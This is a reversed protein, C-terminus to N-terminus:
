GHLLPVVLGSPPGRSPPLRHLLASAAASKAAPGAMPPLVPVESGAVSAPLAAISSAAFPCDHADAAPDGDPTANGADADLDSDTDAAGAIAASAHDARRNGHCIPGTPASAGDARAKLAVALASAPCISLWGAARPATGDGAGVSPMFGAPVLAHLLLAVLVLRAVLRHLRPHRRCTM